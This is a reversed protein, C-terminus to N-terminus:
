ETLYSAAEIRKYKVALGAATLPVVDQVYQHFGINMNRYSSSSTVDFQNDLFGIVIDLQNYKISKFLNSILM